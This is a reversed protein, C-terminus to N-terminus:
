RTLDTERFSASGLKLYSGASQLTCRFRSMTCLGTSGSQHKVEEYYANWTSRCGKAWRSVAAIYPHLQLLSHVLTTSLPSCDDHDECDQVQLAQDQNQDKVQNQWSWCRVVHGDRALVMDEPMVFIPVQHHTSHSERDENTSNEDVDFLKESDPSFKPKWPLISVVTDCFTSNLWWWKSRKCKKKLQNSNSIKTNNIWMDAEVSWPECWASRQRSRGCAVRKRCCHNNHNRPWFRSHSWQDCNWHGAACGDTTRSPFLWWWCRTWHCVKRKWTPRATQVM